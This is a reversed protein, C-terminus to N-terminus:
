PSIAAAGAHIRCWRVVEDLVEAAAANAAVVGGYADESAATHIRGFTASALLRDPDHATLQMRVRLHVRSPTVTFDQRLELLEADLRLATPLSTDAGFLNKFGGNQLAELLLGELMRAPNDVWQSETYYDLAHPRRTYAMRPTDFGPAAQVRAVALPAGVVQPAQAVTINKDLRYSHQLTKSGACGGLCMILLFVPFKVGANM